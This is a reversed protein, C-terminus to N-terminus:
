ATPVDWSSEDTVENYYYWAQSGDDYVEVWNPPLDVQTNEGWTWGEWGEEAGWGGDAYGGYGDDAAAAATGEPAPTTDVGSEKIHQMALAAEETVAAGDDAYATEEKAASPPPERRSGDANLGMERLLAMAYETLMDSMHGGERTTFTYVPNEDDEDTGKIEFYFNIEPKYAWRFIESLPYKELTRMDEHLPDKPPSLLIIGSRSIGLLLRKPLARTYDQKAGFLISGYYDRPELLKLYATMADVPTEIGTLSSHRQYISREWEEAEHLNANMLPAPIYEILGSSLFGPRHSAPNHKGFKNFFQYSALEVATEETTPYTGTIVNYVAQIYLMYVIKPDASKLITETFLKCQYVFKANKTEWKNMLQVVEMKSQLAREITVGDRCEHLSFCLSDDDPNAFGLKEAMSAVVDEVTSAPEVLLTKFSNDLLYVRLVVKGGVERPGDESM